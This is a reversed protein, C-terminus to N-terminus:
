KVTSFKKILIYQPSIQFSETLKEYMKSLNITISFLNATEHLDFPDSKRPYLMIYFTYNIHSYATINNAFSM